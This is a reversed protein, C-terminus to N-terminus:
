AAKLVPPKEHDADYKEAEYKLAAAVAGLLQYMRGMDIDRKSDAVLALFYGIDDM